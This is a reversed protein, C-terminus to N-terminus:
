DRGLMGLSHRSSQRCPPTPPAPPLLPHDRGQGQQDWGCLSHSLFPRPHHGAEPQLSHVGSHHGLPLPPLQLGCQLHQLPTGVSRDPLQFYPLYSPAQSCGDPRIGPVGLLPWLCVLIFQCPPPTLEREQWSPVTVLGVERGLWTEGAGLGPEPEGEPFSVSQEM